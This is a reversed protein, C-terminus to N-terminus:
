QETNSVPEHDHSLAESPLRQSLARRRFLMRLRGVPKLIVRVEHNEDVSADEIDFRQRLKTEWWEWPQVILHANRGDSLTKKAPRTAIVAFLIRRTVHRLHDLVDDICDPEVHELVDTCVVLDAPKPVHDKGEVAPDYEAIPMDLKSALAGGGCGYDLITKLKYEAMLSHIPELWRDGWVGYGGRQHLERNLARYSDSILM